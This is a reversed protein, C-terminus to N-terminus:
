SDRRPGGALTRLTSSLSPLVHRYLTEQECCDGTEAIAMALERFAPPGEAAMRAALQKAKALQEDTQDLKTGSRWLDVSMGVPTIPRGIYKQMNHIMRIGYADLDCWAAIPLNLEALFRILRKSPNGQNWVCLWIDTIEDLLCVQEFAESNEIVFIGLASCAVHGVKRIGEAPVAIWPYAEAANAVTDTSVWTLPGSLRISIDAEDVAQDFARRIANSFAIRRQDNWKKTDRFAEGALEKAKLRRGQREAEWWTCAARIAPDYVTWATTRTSSGTPVRAVPGVTIAALLKREASLEPVDSMLTLLESVAAQNDQTRAAARVQRQLLPQGTLIAVTDALGCQAAGSRLQQDLKGLDVRISRGIQRTLPRGLLAGIESATPLDPVQVTVSGRPAGSNRELQRRLQQWLAALEPRSLVIRVHEPLRDVSM